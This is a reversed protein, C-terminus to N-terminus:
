SINDNVQKIEIIESALEAIKEEGSLVMKKIGSRKSVTFTLSNIDKKLKLAM